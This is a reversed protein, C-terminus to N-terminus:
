YQLPPPPPVCISFIRTYLWLIEIPNTSSYKQQPNYNLFGKNRFAQTRTFLIELGGCGVGCVEVVVRYGFLFFHYLVPSLKRIYRVVVEVRSWLWFPQVNCRTMMLVVEVTMLIVGFIASWEVRWEEDTLASRLSAVPVVKKRTEAGNGVQFLSKLTISPGPIYLGALIM